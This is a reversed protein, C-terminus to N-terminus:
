DGKEPPTKAKATHSKVKTGISDISDMMRRQDKKKADQWAVFSEKDTRCIMDNKLFEGTSELGIARLQEDTTGAKKFIYKYGPNERELEAIRKERNNETSSTIVMKPAVKREQAKEEAVAEVAKEELETVTAQLKEDGYLKPNKVGLTKAKAELAERDAKEMQSTMANDGTNDM